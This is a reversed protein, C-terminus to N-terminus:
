KRTTSAALQSIKAVCITFNFDIGGASKEVIRPSFGRVRAIRAYNPKAIQRAIEAKFM